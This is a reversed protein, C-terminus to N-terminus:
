KNQCRFPEVQERARVGEKLELPVTDRVVAFNQNYITLAPPEASASVLLSAFFASVITIKM